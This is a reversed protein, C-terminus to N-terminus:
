AARAQKRGLDQAGDPFRCERAGAADPSAHYGSQWGGIRARPELGILICNRRARARRLMVDVISWSRALMM